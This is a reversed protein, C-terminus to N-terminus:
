YPTWNGSGDGVMKHCVVISISEYEQALAYGGKEGLLIWLSEPIGSLLICIINEIVRFSSSIKFPRRSVWVM